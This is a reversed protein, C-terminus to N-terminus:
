KRTASAVSAWNGFGPINSIDVGPDGPPTGSLPSGKAGERLPQTGEFYQPNKFKKKVDAYSNSAVADLM